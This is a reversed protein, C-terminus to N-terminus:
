NPVKVDFKIAALQEPAMGLKRLFPLWRPDSHINAFMPPRAVARSGSGPVAVAKDLWEFARDTRRSVCVGDSHPVGLRRTSRSSSRWRRMPSPERRARPVGDAARDAWVEDPEQKIEALAAEAEGKQLLVEGICSRGSMSPRLSLATRHEAM